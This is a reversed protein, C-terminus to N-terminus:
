DIFVPEFFIALKDVVNKALGRWGSFPYVRAIALALEPTPIQGSSLSPAPGTM